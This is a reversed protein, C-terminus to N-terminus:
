PVSTSSSSGVPLLTASGGLGLIAFVVELKAVLPEVPKLRSWIARLNWNRSDSALLINLRHATRPQLLESMSIWWSLFSARRYSSPLLVVMRLLLPRRIRPSDARMDAIFLFCSGRHLFCWRSNSEPFGDSSSESYRLSRRFVLTGSPGARISAKLM